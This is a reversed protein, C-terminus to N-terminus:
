EEEDFFASIPEFENLQQSFDYILQICPLVHPLPVSDGESYHLIISFPEM